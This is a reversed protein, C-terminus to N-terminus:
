SGLRWVGKATTPRNTLDDHYQKINRRCNEKRNESINDPYEVDDVHKTEVNIWWVINGFHRKVYIADSNNSRFHAGGCGDSYHRWNKHADIMYYKSGSKQAEKKSKAEIINREEESINRLITGNASVECWDHGILEVRYLVGDSVRVRYGTDPDIWWDQGRSIAREKTQKNRIMRSISKCVFAFACFIAMYVAFM